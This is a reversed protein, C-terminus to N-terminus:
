FLGTNVWDQSTVSWWDVALGETVYRYSLWGYGHNGM